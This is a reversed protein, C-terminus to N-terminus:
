RKLIKKLNHILSEKLNARIPLTYSNDIESNPKVNYFILM